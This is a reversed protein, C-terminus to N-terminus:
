QASGLTYEIDYYHKGDTITIAVTGAIGALEETGSDPVVSISLNAEGRTMIGTHHLLFSGKKGNLSGTVREVAVYVGSNASAMGTLMEGKSTGVFDGEWQKDIAMRGAVAGSDAPLPTIKVEFTGKAHTTLNAEKQIIPIAPYSQGRAPTVSGSLSIGAFLLTAPALRHKM